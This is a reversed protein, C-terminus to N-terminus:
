ASGAAQKSRKRGRDKSRGNSDGEITLSYIASLQQERLVYAKLQRATTTREYAEKFRDMAQKQCHALWGKLDQAQLIREDFESDVNAWFTHEAPHPGKVRNKEDKIGIDKRYNDLARKLAIYCKEALEAAIKCLEQLESINSDSDHEHTYNWEIIDEIKGKDNLVGGLWWTLKCPCLPRLANMINTRRNSALPGTEAGSLTHFDRWPVKAAELKIHDVKNSKSTVVSAMFERGDPLDAYAPGPFKKHWGYLGCHVLDPNIYIARSMPVLRELYSNREGALEARPIEWTPVGFKVGNQHLEKKTTLNLQVTTLLNEGSPICLLTRSSLPSNPVSVVAGGVPNAIISVPAFNHVQLMLLVAEPATYQRPKADEVDHNFLTQTNGSPIYMDLKQLVANDGPRGPPLIQLFPKDGFLEFEHQHEELYAVSKPIISDRCSVIEAEPGDIARQAICVLLRLVAVRQLPPLQLAKITEAEEFLQKLGVTNNPVVPIWPDTVLNM